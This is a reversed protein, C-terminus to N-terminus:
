HWGCNLTQSANSLKSWFNISVPLSVPNISKAMTKMFACNVAMPNWSTESITLWMCCLFLPGLLHANLVSSFAQPPTPHSNLTVTDQWAHLVLSKLYQYNFFVNSESAQQDSLQSLICQLIEDVNQELTATAKNVISSRSVTYWIQDQVFKSEIYLHWSTLTFVM